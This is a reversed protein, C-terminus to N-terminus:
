SSFLVLFLFFPTKSCSSISVFFSVFLLFFFSPWKWFTPSPCSQLIILFFTYKFLSRCAVTHHDWRISAQHTGVWEEGCCRDQRGKWMTENELFCFWRLYQDPLSINANQIERWLISKWSAEPLELAWQCCKFLFSPPHREWNNVNPVCYCHPEDM